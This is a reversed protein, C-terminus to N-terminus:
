RSSVSFAADAQELEITHQSRAKSMAMLAKFFFDEVVRLAGLTVTIFLREARIRLPSVMLYKSSNSTSLTSPPSWPSDVTNTGVPVGVSKGMPMVKSTRTLMPLSPLVTRRPSFGSITSNM